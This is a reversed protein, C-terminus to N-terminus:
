VHGTSTGIWTGFLVIELHSKIREILKSSMSSYPLTVVADLPADDALYVWNSRALPTFSHLDLTAEHRDVVLCALCIAM